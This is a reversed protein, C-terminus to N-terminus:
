DLVRDTKQSENRNLGQTYKITRCLGEGERRKVLAETKGREFGHGASRRHNRGIKWRQHLGHALGGFQHAGIVDEVDLASHAFNEQIAFPTFAQPCSPSRLRLAEM